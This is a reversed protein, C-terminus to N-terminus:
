PCVIVFTHRDRCHLGVGYEQTDQKHPTIPGKHGSFRSVEALMLLGSLGPLAQGPELEAYAYYRRVGTTRLRRSPGEGGSKDDSRDALPNGVLM